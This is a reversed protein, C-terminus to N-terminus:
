HGCGSSYWCSVRSVLQCRFEESDIYREFAMVDAFALAISRLDMAGAM